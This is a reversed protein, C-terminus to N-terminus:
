VQIDSIAKPVTNAGVDHVCRQLFAQFGQGPNKEYVSWARKIFAKLEAFFEEIPTFDLSYPLLYLSKVGADTCLQKIREPHNSSANNQTRCGGVTSSFTSSLSNSSCPMLQVKLFVLCFSVTKLM